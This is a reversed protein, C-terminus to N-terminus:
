RRGRRRGLTRFGPHVGPRLGQQEAIRQLLGALQEQEEADLAACLAQQHERAVSAISDLMSRGAGSLHLAYTRRDDPNDRREVLGRSELGDVLAVLRSPLVGLNGALVQQSVGTSSALARLIGAEPPSLDLARRLRDAFQM